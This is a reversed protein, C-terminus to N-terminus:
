SQIIAYVFKSIENLFVITNILKSIWVSGCLNTKGVRSHTFNVGM